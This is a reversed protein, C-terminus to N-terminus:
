AVTRFPLASNNKEDTYCGTQQERITQKMIWDIALPILFLPMLCGQNVGTNVTFGESLGGAYLVICIMRDYSNKIILTFKGPIGYHRM